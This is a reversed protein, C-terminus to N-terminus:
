FACESAEFALDLLFVDDFVDLFMGEVQFRTFFLPDFLGKGALSQAFFHAAHTWLGAKAEM